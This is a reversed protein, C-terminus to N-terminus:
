TDKSSNFYKYVTQYKNHTGLKKNANQIHFNVTRMSIGLEKAIQEVRWLKETLTICLKERDTLRDPAIPAHTINLIRKMHHYFVQTASLWEYQNLEYQALCTEDHCQHLTLSM